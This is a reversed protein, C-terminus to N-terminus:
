HDVRLGLMPSLEELAKDLTAQNKAEANLRLLPETNSKRINAWWGEGKFCDITVGDLEDMEARTAFHERLEAIAEDNDEIEFNSEVAQVYRAVPM